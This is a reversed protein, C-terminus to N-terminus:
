FDVRKAKDAELLAQQISVTKCRGLSDQINIIIELKITSFSM